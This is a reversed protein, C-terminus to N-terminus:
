FVFQCLVCNSFHIIIVILYKEGIIVVACDDVVMELHWKKWYAM